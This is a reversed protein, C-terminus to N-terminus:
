MDFGTDILGTARHSQRDCRDLRTDITLEDLNAHMWDVEGELRFM